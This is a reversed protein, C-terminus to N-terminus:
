ARTVIFESDLSMGAPIFQNFCDGTQIRVSLYALNGNSLSSLDLKISGLGTFSWPVSSEIELFNNFDPISERKFSAICREPTDLGFIEIELVDSSARILSKGYRKCGPTRIISDFLERKLDFSTDSVRACRTNSEGFYFTSWLSKNAVRNSDMFVIYIPLKGLKVGAFLTFVPLTPLARQTKFDHLVNEKTYSIGFSLSDQSHHYLFHGNTDLCSIMTNADLTLELPRQSRTQVLQISETTGGVSCGSRATFSVPRLGHAGFTNLYINSELDDVPGTPPVVSHCNIWDFINQSINHHLEETDCFILYRSSM